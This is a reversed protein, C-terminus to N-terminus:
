VWGGGAVGRRDSGPHDDRAWGQGVSWAVETAVHGVGNGHHHQTAQGDAPGILAHAHAQATRQKLVGGLAGQIGGISSMTLM